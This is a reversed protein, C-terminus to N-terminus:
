ARTETYRGLVREMAQALQKESFPKGLKEIQTPAGIPLEGYGTALIIPLDPCANRAHVILETGNMRPMAHDTILLQVDPHQRLLDLAEDGSGAEIVTHGMDELMAAVNMLILVDDDVALVKMAGHQTSQAIPPTPVSEQRETVEDSSPLWLSATTGQGPESELLFTGELQKALGHIMSLGLGTGKGVGKTTFFPETARTLTDADMGEGDDIVSLRIYSGPALGNVAVRESEAEPMNGVTAQAATIRIVGGDPMADRANVTLNLLAMELQNADAIVPPLQEPFELQLSWTPGLTRQVLDTMGRVLTPLDVRAPQLDQRRAFALMRQTLAAGRQAGQQANDILRIIQPDDPLRKELMALSSSIAMLLNNFDHAVGGTLQGVADMKQVQRLTDEAKRMETLDSVICCFMRPASAEVQIEVVSMNTPVRRNDRTNLVVESSVANGGSLLAKVIEVDCAQDALATGILATIPQGLLEAFSHNAYLILGDENLTIAGEKMQEVLIRYPRDANELTYVFQGTPGGVVIADVEGNRIADLTENAEGLLRELEAIRRLHSPGAM